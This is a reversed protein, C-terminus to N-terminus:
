HFAPLEDFGARRTESPHTTLFQTTAPLSYPMRPAFPSRISDQKNRLLVKAMWTPPFQVMRSQVALAPPPVPILAPSLAVTWPQWDSPLRPPPIATPLPARTWSQTALELTLLPKEPPEETTKRCQVANFLPLAPKLAFRDALKSPQRDMLLAPTPMEPESLEVAVPHLLWILESLPM